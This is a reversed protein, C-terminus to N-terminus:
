HCLIFPFAPCISKAGNTCQPAGGYCKVYNDSLLPWVQYQYVSFFSVIISSQRGNSVLISEACTMLSSRQLCTVQSIPCFLQQTFYQGMSMQECPCIEFSLSALNFDKRLFETLCHFNVSILCVNHLIIRMLENTIQWEFYSSAHIFGLYTVLLYNDTYM